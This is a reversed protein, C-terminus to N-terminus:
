RLAGSATGPPEGLGADRAAIVAQARDAAHIKPLINSVHNAVTRPSIGLRRAIAGNSTGDALLSLVERERDSLEPFATPLSTGSAVMGLLRDAVDGDSSPMGTRSPPSAASWTPARHAKSSTAVHAPVSPASSSSTRTSCRSCWSPSTPTDAPSTGSPKYVAWALCELDMLVVDPRVSGM